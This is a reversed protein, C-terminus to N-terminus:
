NENTKPETQKLDLYGQSGMLPRMRSKFSTESENRNWGTSLWGDRGQQSRETGIV